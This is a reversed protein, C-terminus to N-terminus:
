PRIDDEGQGDTFYFYFTHEAVPLITEYKYVAGTTYGGSVYVMDHTCDGGSCDISVTKTAPADGDSDSYTVYFTFPTTPSGSTPTVYGGTLEPDHNPPSNVYIQKSYENNSEDSENDVDNDADIKVRIWHYGSTTFTWQSDGQGYYYHSGL